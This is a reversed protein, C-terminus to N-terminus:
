NQLMLELFGVLEQASIEIEEGVFGYKIEERYSERIDSMKSWYKYDKDEESSSLYWDIVKQEEKLLKMVEIPLNIKENRFEYLSDLIFKMLRLLEFSEVVSSGFLAPLGNLADYWGPKGAEM